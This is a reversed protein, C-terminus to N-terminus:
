QTQVKKSTQAPTPNTLRPKEAPHQAKQQNLQLNMQKLAARDNELKRQDERLAERLRWTSENLQKIQERYQWTEREIRRQEEDRQRIQDRYPQEALQRQQNLKNIQDQYPQSVQRLAEDLGRYKDQFPKERAQIQLNLQNIQDQIPKLVMQDKKYQDEDQHMSAAVRMEDSFANSVGFLFVIVSMALLTKNAM